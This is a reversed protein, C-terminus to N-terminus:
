KILSEIIKYVRESCQSKYYPNKLKKIKRLFIKTNIKNYFKNIKKSSVQECHVVNKPAYRKKQRLGINITPIRFSASEIIGSSSNTILCNSYRLFNYYDNIGLHKILYINSYKDLKNIESIFKNYGYDANPYTFIINLNKKKKLFNILSNLINLNYSLTKNTEPHFCSIIIKKKPDLKYKNLLNNKSFNIRKINELAPAGVIYLNKKINSKILNTKHHETELFHAYSMKSICYRYENDHSGLTESGGCFHFIKINLNFAAHAAAIMEYRDGLILIGDIRFKKIFNDMYLMTSSFYQMTMNEFRNNQIPYDIKFINKKKIKKTDIEKITKGFSKSLHASGIILYTEFKNSGSFKEIINKMIGYDSRGVSIIALKKKM